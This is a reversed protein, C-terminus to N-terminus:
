SHTLQQQLILMFMKIAQDCEHRACEIELTKNIVKIYAETERKM